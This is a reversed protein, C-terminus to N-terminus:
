VFDFSPVLNREPQSSGHFIIGKVVLSDRLLTVSFSCIYTTTLTRHRRIQLYSEVQVKTVRLSPKAVFSPWIICLNNTLTVKLGTSFGHHYREFSFQKMTCDYKNNTPIKRFSIQIQGTKPSLPSFYLCPPLSSYVDIFTTKPMPLEYNPMPCKPECFESCHNAQTVALFYNGQACNSLAWLLRCQIM